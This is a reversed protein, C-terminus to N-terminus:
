TRTSGVPLDSDAREILADATDDPGLMAFGVKIDCPGPHQALAARVGAFRERAEEDSAGSMACLFEDGGLRIVLDYPRLQAQIERVVRQLLADGAAHGQRDNVLKLGVVDIYAAVLKGTTRRSRIIEVDLERLGAGRTRSGTLADTEALAIQHQMADRDVAARERDRAAQERDAAAQKRDAAAQERDTAARARHDAAAQRQAAARTRGRSGRLLLRAPSLERLGRSWGTDHTELERDRLTAAEDRAAAALDRERASEDRTAATSFRERSAHERRVTGRDRVQRSEDHVVSDGGSALDRDSAAQDSDSAAQDSDAAAQDSDYATQDSDAASQDRDSLSQEAEARSPKGREADGFAEELRPPSSRTNRQHGEIADGSEDAIRDGSREGAVSAEGNAPRRTEALGTGM